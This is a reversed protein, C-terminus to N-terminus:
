VEDDIPIPRFLVQQKDFVGVHSPYNNIETRVIPRIRTPIPRFVQKNFVFSPEDDTSIAFSRPILPPLLPCNDDYVVLMTDYVAALPLPPPSWVGSFNFQWNFNNSIIAILFHNKRTSFM